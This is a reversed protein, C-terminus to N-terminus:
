DKIIVFAKFKDEDWVPTYEGNHRSIISVISNIGFGGDKKASLLKDGNQNLIGDFSNEAMFGFNDDHRHMRLEIYRKKGEPTRMCATVANELLNGTIICMEYDSISPLLEIKVTFSIQEKECREAFGSLLANLVRNKCYNHLPANITNANLKALYERAEDAYGDEFLKQM